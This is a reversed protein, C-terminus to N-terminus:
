RRWGLAGASDLGTDLCALVMALLYSRGSVLFFMDRRRVNLLLFLVVLFGYGRLAVVVTLVGRLEGGRGLWLWGGVVSSAGRRVVVMVIM